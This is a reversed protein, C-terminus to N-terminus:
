RKKAILLLSGGLPFSVGMNIISHEIALIKEFITNIFVPLKLEALVDYPTDISQRKSYRSALMFPLLLSIFSTTKIVEFGAKTVKSKLDQVHYRRVHCAHEDQISWLFQHQPVSLIIGGGPRVAQYMQQLVKEDEEIHELVDFAGIIDFANEFPIQRADMQFLSAEKVRQSTYSLGESFIESGYLKLHPFAKNIGSLVFGTGCGIELFDRSQKFYKQLAWIIIRNRATFWFNNPEVAALEAYYESKFSTNEYALHPSFAPHQNIYTPSTVCAPCEWAATDFRYDCAFCIKM